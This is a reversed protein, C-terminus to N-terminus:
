RADARIQVATALDIRERVEAYLDVGLDTQVDLTAVLGFPIGNAVREGADRMCNVRLELFDGDVFATAARGRFILHQVTGRSVLPDHAEVSKMRLSTEIDQDRFAHSLWVNHSRYKRNTVVIPCLSALTTTITRIAVRSALSPPLPFRFVVSRGEKIKGAAIVTIRAATCEVVREPRAFGYGLIHAVETRLAQPLVNTLLKGITERADGWSASHILMAKILAAEELRGLSSAAVAPAIADMIDTSARLLLAAANSTGKLHARSRPPSAVEHGPASRNALPRLHSADAPSMPDLQFAVRGGSMYVEPKVMRGIGGGLATYPTPLDHPVTVFPAVVHPPLNAADSSGAGVTIVNIAEAPSLIPRDGTTAILRALFAEEIDTIPTAPFAASPINLQINAPHNGASVIFLVGYKWTLFDLLKAWPSAYWDLPRMLDGVCLCVVRVDPAANEPGFLRLISRHVLDIPLYDEPIEETTSHLTRRPLMIPRIYVMENLPALNEGLDGHVVLSVMGTGHIRDQVAALAEFGDPDDLVVYGALLPHNQIPVGDLMAIRPQRRVPTARLGEAIEIGEDIEEFEVLAQARPRVFM